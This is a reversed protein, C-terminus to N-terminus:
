AIKGSISDLIHSVRTPELTSSLHISALDIFQDRYTQNNQMLRTFVKGSIAGSTFTWNFADYNATTFGFDTDFLIWRWKGNDITKWTKLNNHPWDTNGYYIQIFFYNIMNDVDVMEKLTQYVSEQSVDQNLVLDTVKSFEPHYTIEDIDVGGEILYFEDEDLGYNSYLYDKSTRERLNQIGFYSGNLYLIAPEYAQYDMDMRHMILSQMFADRMMTNGWDNGSNRLLIDKYKRKPKTASFIDYRLRNDGFKKRPSIKLSKQASARTWGGSIAIDLEQNLQSVGNIDFLEFNAPRSWDQNWNRPESQGKGPIGNTGATYIGITNDDLNIPDTILSVVPLDIQNDFIYSAGTIDSAMKNNAFSRARIVTTNNISITAGANYKTSSQTPEKGDTTYYITEGTPPALFNLRVTSSYIGGAVSFAPKACQNTLQPKGNNSTGCTYDSFFGWATAGDTKRGYSVNRYQPPYGIMDIQNGALDYLYLEGGEPDLKFSAHKERDHREFWLVHYGGARLITSSPRWMKKNNLDDSFYFMSLNIAEDGENYLEVWMSYNYGDDMVASVNNSMLENIKLQYAKPQPPEIPTPDQNTGIVKVPFEKKMSENGYLLEATLIAEETNEPRIVTGDPFIMDDNSSTWTVLVAGEDMLFPLDLSYLIYDLNENRGKIMEATLQAYYTKMQDSVQIERIEEQTLTRNYIRFDNLYSRLGPDGYQSKGIYNLHTYGLSQPTIKVVEGLNDRRYGVEEGNVYMKIEGEAVVGDIITYQGTVAVHSWQNPSLFSKHSDLQYESGVIDTNKMAFRLGSGGGNTTLFMNHDRGRGFDFIRAWQDSADPKVWMMITFDTFDATLNEPLLLYDIAPNALNGNNTNNLRLSKGERFDSTAIQADGWLIADTLSTEDVRNPAKGETTLSTLEYHYILNDTLNDAVASLIIGFLFLLTLTQRLFSNGLTNKM